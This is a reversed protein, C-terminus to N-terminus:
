TRGVKSRAKQLLDNAVEVLTKDMIWAIDVNSKEHFRSLIFAIHEEKPLNLLSAHLENDEEFPFIGTETVEM